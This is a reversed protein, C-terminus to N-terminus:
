LYILSNICSNLLLLLAQVQHWERRVDVSFQHLGKSQSASKLSQLIVMALFVASNHRSCSQMKKGILARESVVGVEGACRATLAEAVCCDM